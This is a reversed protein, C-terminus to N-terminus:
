WFKCGTLNFVLGMPDAIHRKIFVARLHATAMDGVHHRRSAIGGNPQQSPCAMGVNRRSAAPQSGLRRLGQSEDTNFKFVSHGQGNGCSVQGCSCKIDCHLRRWSQRAHHHRGCVSRAVQRPTADVATNSQRALQVAIGSTSAQHMGPHLFAHPSVEM